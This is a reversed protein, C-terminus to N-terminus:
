HIIGKERLKTVTEFLNKFIFDPEVNGPKKEGIYITKVGAAQGAQIDVDRDGVLYSQSLDIDYKQTLELIMGPKPKRCDCGQRPKHICSKIERLKGGAKEIQQKMYKHIADLDDVSFYGLGVGGQNTVVFIEFRCENLAKIAEPVQPLLVLDEARNVNHSENIVGDRDLFFAKM